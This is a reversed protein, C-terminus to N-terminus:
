GDGDDSRRRTNRIHILPLTSIYALMINRRVCNLMGWGMYKLEGRLEKRLKKKKGDQIKGVRKLGEEERKRESKGWREPSIVASITLVTHARFIIYFVICWIYVDFIFVQISVQELSSIFVKMM